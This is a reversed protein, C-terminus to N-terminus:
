TIQVIRVKQFKSIMQNVLTLYDIMRPDKAKFNGEVQIIVLQSNSHKELNTAEFSLAVKLRALLAEYEVENNLAKFGLRLSHELKVGEPSIVIIGVAAGMANSAGDIFVKWPWAEVSCVVGHCGKCLTFKAIFDTLVQGKVSSRPRYWVDFSGLKM